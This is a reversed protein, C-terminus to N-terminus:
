GYTVEELYPIDNLCPTTAWPKLPPFKCHLVEHLWPGPRTQLAPYPHEAILQIRFATIGYVKIKLWRIAWFLGPADLIDFGFRLVVNIHLRRRVAFVPFIRHGPFIM